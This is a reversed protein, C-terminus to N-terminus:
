RAVAEALADDRSARETPLTAPMQEPRVTGTPSLGLAAALLVAAQDQPRRRQEQAVEKLRALEDPRLPVYLLRV